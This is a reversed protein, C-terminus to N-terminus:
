LLLRAGCGCPAADAPIQFTNCGTLGNKLAFATQFVQKVTKESPRESIGGTAFWVYPADGQPSMGQRPPSLGDSFTNESPRQAYFM